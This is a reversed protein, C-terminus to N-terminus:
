PSEIKSRRPGPGFRNNNSYIIRSVRDGVLIQMSSYISPVPPNSVSRELYSYEYIVQEKSETDGCKLSLIGTQRNIVTEVKLRVLWCGYQTCSNPARRRLTIQGM